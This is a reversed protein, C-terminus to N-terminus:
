RRRRKFFSMKKIVTACQEEREGDGIVYGDGNLEWGWGDDRVWATSRKSIKQKKFFGFVLWTHFQVIHTATKVTAIYIYLMKVYIFFSQRSTPLVKHNEGKKM